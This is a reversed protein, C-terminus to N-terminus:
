IRLIFVSPPGSSPSMADAFQHEVTRRSLVLDLVATTVAAPTTTIVSSLLADQSYAADCCVHAPAPKNPAPPASEHCASVPAALKAGPAAAYAVPCAAQLLIAAIAAFAAVRSIMRAMASNRM